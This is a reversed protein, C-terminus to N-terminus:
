SVSGGNENPGTDLHGITASGGALACPLLPGVHLNCLSSLVRARIEPCRCWGAMLRRLRCNVLPPRVLSRVFSRVTVSPGGVSRRPACTSSAPLESRHMAFGFYNADTQYEHHEAFTDPIRPKEPQRESLAFHKLRCGVGLGADQFGGELWRRRSTAESSSAGTAWRSFFMWGHVDLLNLTTATEM